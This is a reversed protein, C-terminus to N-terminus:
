KGKMRLRTRTRHCNACVLDCKKIEKLVKAWARGAGATNVMFLKKGRVHDFDMCESPFRGSCDMCPADKLKDLRERIKEAAVRGARLRIRRAAEPNRARWARAKERRYKKTDSRVM